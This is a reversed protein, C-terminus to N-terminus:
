EDVIITPEHGVPFNMSRAIFCFKAAEHHLSRAKERDSTATITVTPHLVVATFQGSGDDNEAMVGSADDRYAIVNVGADACLHLYWLHHCASLAAVLLDEPNWRAPLGRFQADSSGAIAPKGNVRLRYSRDYSTYSSTGAGTNGTWELQVDYHHIKGAM